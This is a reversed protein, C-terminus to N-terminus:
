SPRGALVIAFSTEVQGPLQEYTYPPLQGIEVSYPHQWEYQPKPNLDPPLEDAVFDFEMKVSAGPPVEPGPCIVKFTVPDTYDERACLSWTAGAPHLWNGNLRLRVEAKAVTANGRNSVTVTLHGAYRGGEAPRLTLDTAEVWLV